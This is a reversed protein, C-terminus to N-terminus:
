SQVTPRDSPTTDLSASISTAAGLAAAERVPSTQWLANAIELADIQVNSWWSRESGYRHLERHHDRCLPVTFEDSVKRGLAKAQAFKLHHADCPTRQCVLCPQAAVFLLHAKSRRRVEKRLPTVELPGHPTQGTAPKSDQLRPAGEMGSHSVSADSASPSHDPNGPDRSTQILSQYATEVMRADDVTLTNKAPLRKHAWLALGDGDTLAAIEALLQQRLERSREPDLVPAKHIIAKLPRRPSRVTPDPPQAM